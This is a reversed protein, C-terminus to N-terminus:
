KILYSQYEEVSIFMDIAADYYRGEKNDYFIRMGNPSNEPFVPDLGQRKATEHTM